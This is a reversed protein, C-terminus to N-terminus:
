IAEKGRINRYFSQASVGIFVPKCDSGIGHNEVAALQVKFPVHMMRALAGDFTIRWDPYQSLLPPANSGSRDLRSM